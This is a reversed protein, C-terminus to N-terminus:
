RMNIMDNAEGIDSEDQVEDLPPFQEYPVIEHWEDDLEPLKYCPKDGPEAIQDGHQECCAEAEAETEFVYWTDVYTPGCYDNFEYRQYLPLMFAPIDIPADVSINTRYEESDHFCVKSVPYIRKTEDAKNHIEMAEQAVGEKAAPNATGYDNVAERPEDFRGAGIEDSIKDLQWECGLIFAEEPITSIDIDNPLSVCEEGLKSDHEKWAKVIFDVLKKKNLQVNDENM